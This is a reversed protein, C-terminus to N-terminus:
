PSQSSRIKLLFECSNIMKTERPAIKRIFFKLNKNLVLLSQARIVFNIHTFGVAYSNIENKKEKIKAM